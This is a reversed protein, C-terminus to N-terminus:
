KGARLQAFFHAVNPTDQSFCRGSLHTVLTDAVRLLRRACLYEALTKHRFSVASKEDGWDEVRLPLAKLLRRVEEHSKKPLGEAARRIVQGLELQWENKDVMMCAVAEGVQLAFQVEEMRKEEVEEKLVGSSAVCKNLYLEYLDAEQMAGMDKKREAARKVAGLPDEMLMSLLFPNKTAWEFRHRLWEAEPEMTAQAIFLVSSPTTMKTAKEALAWLMRHKPVLGSVLAFKEVFSTGENVIHEEATRGMSSCMYRLADSKEFQQLFRVAAGSGCLGEATLGHAKLYEGRTTLVVSCHRQVWPHLDLLSNAGPVSDSEGQQQKPNLDEKGLGTEDFSDLLVVVDYAKVLAERREKDLGLTKGIYEALGDEKTLGGKVSPLPVFVPLVERGGPRGVSLGRGRPSGPSRPSALPSACEPRVMWSM